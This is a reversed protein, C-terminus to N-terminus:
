QPIIPPENWLGMSSMLWDWNKSCRAGFTAKVMECFRSIPSGRDSKEVTRRTIALEVSSIRKMADIDEFIKLEYSILRLTWDNSASQFRQGLLCWDKLRGKTETPRDWLLGPDWQDPWSDRYIKDWFEVNFILQIDNPLFVWRDEVSSEVCPRCWGIMLFLEANEVIKVQSMVVREPSSKPHDSHLFRQIWFSKAAIRVHPVARGFDVNSIPSVGSIRPRIKACITWSHEHYITQLLM